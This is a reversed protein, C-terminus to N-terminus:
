EKTESPLLDEADLYGVDKEAKVWELAEIGLEQAKVEEDTLHGPSTEILNKNVEIAKELKM